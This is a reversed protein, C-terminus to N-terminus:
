YRIVFLLALSTSGTSLGATFLLNDGDGKRGSSFGFFNLTAPNVSEYDGWVEPISL